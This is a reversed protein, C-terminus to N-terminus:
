ADVYTINTNTGIKKLLHRCELQQQSLLFIKVIFIIFFFLLFLTENKKLIVTMLATDFWNM